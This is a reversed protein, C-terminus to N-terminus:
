LCQDQKLEQRLKQEQREEKKNKVLKLARQARRLRYLDRWQNHIVCGELDDERRQQSHVGEFRRGRQAKEFM